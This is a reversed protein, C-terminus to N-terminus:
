DGGLPLSGQPPGGGVYRQSFYLTKTWGLYRRRYLGSAQSKLDSAETANAEHDEMISLKVAQGNPGSAFAEWAWRQTGADLAGPLVM